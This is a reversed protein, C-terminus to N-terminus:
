ATISHSFSLNLEYADVAIYLKLGAKQKTKGPSHFAIFKDTLIPKVHLNFDLKNPLQRYAVRVDDPINTTCSSFALTFLLIYLHPLWRM